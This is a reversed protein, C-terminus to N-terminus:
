DNGDLLTEVKLTVNDTNTLNNIFIPNGNSNKNHFIFSNGALQKIQEYDYKVYYGNDRFEFLNPNSDGSVDFLVGFGKREDDNDSTHRGTNFQIDIYTENEFDGKPEKFYEKINGQWKIIQNKAASMNPEDHMNERVLEIRPSNLHNVGGQ